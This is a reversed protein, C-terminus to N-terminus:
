KTVCAGVRANFADILRDWEDIQAFTETWFDPDWLRNLDSVSRQQQEVWTYYKLNHLRKRDTYRLEQYYDPGIGELHRGFHRSALQQDYDGHQARQENLRSQYMEMSDTLPMLIVDRGDMEFHKATKIAAVLNCISSIGLLNLQSVTEESVGESTLFTQGAPENFLSRLM